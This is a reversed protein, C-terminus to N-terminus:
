RDNKLIFAAFIGHRKTIREPESIQHRIIMIFIRHHPDFLV